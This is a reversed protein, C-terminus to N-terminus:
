RPDRSIARPGGCGRLRLAARAKAVHPASASADRAKAVGPRAETFRVGVAECQGSLSPARTASLVVAAHGAVAGGNVAGACATHTVTKASAGTSRGAEDSMVRGFLIPTALGAAALRAAGQAAAGEAGACQTGAGKKPRSKSAGAGVVGAVDNAPRRPASAKGGILDEDLGEEAATSSKEM